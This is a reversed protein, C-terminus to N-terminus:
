VYKVGEQYDEMAKFDIFVEKKIQYTKSPSSLKLECELTLDNPAFVFLYVSVKGRDGKKAGIISTDRNSVGEFLFDDSSIVAKGRIQPAKDFCSGVINDDIDRETDQLSDFLGCAHTFRLLGQWQIPEFVHSCSMDLSLDNINEGITIPYEFHVSTDTAIYEETDDNNIDLYKNTGRKYDDYLFSVEGVDFPKECDSRCSQYDEGTECINNGCCNDKIKTSCEIGNCFYEKCTGASGSCTGCDKPCTCKNENSDCKDNGCFSICKGNQCTEYNACKVDKPCTACNEGETVEGDGCRPIYKYGYYFGAFVIAIILLPVLVKLSLFKEFFRPTDVGKKHEEKTQIKKTQKEKEVKTGCEPCFDDDKTLNAECKHCKM